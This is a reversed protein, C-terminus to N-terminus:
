MNNDYQLVLSIVRWVSFKDCTIVKNYYIVMKDSWNVSTKSKTNQKAILNKLTITFIQAYIQM